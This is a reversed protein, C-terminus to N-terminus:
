HGAARDFSAPTEATAFLNRTAPPESKILLSSELARAFRVLQAESGSFDFKLRVQSGNFGGSSQPGSQSGLQQLFASCGLCFSRGVNDVSLDWNARVQNAAPVAMSSV